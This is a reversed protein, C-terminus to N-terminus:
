HKSERHVPYSDHRSGMHQSHSSSVQLDLVYMYMCVHMGTIHIYICTCPLSPEKIEVSNAEREARCRQLDQAYLEDSPLM